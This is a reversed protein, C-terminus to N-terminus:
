QDSPTARGMQPKDGPVPVPRPELGGKGKKAQMSIFIGAVACLGIFTLFVITIM